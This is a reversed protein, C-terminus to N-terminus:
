NETRTRLWSQRFERQAPTPMGGTQEMALLELEPHEALVITGTVPEGRRLFRVRLTEGPKRAELVGSVDQASAMERGGLSVIVDDKELGAAYAPSSPGVLAAIRVGQAHPDFSVGGLWARGPYRRRLVLGARSLLREYDVVEHGEIYKAFFAGAFEPDGSVAALRDQADRPTYPRSVLGPAADGPSGHERWMARMYDDLTVRGSTLDRLALDLALGIASGWTYYSVFAISFNTEDVWAAGDVFPAM